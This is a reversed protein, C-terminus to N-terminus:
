PSRTTTRSRRPGPARPWWRRSRPPCRSGFDVGAWQERGSSAGFAAGDSATLIHAHAIMGVAAGDRGSAGSPVALTAGTRGASAARRCRGLWRSSARVKRSGHKAKGAGRREGRTAGQAHFFPRTTRQLGARGPTATGRLAALGVLILAIFCRACFVRPPSAGTPGPPSMALCPEGQAARGSWSEGASGRGLM